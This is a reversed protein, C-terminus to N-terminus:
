AASEPYVEREAAAYRELYDDMSTVDALTKGEAHLSAQVRADVAARGVISARLREVGSAAQEAETELEAFAGEVAAAYEEESWSGPMRGTRALVVSLAAEARVAARDALAIREEYTRLKRNM